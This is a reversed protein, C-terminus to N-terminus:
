SFEDYSDNSKDFLIYSIKEIKEPKIHYVHTLEQLIENYYSSAIIIKKFKLFRILDPTIITKTEFFGYKKTEDSDIFAVINFNDNNMQKIRRLCYSGTGYILINEKKYDEKRNEKMLRIRLSSIEFNKIITNLIDVKSLHKYKLDYSNFETNIKGKKIVINTDNENVAYYKSLDSVNFDGKNVIKYMYSWHTAETSVKNLKSLSNISNIVIQMKIQEKSRVPYHAFKLYDIHEEIINGGLKDIKHYGSELLINSNLINSPLIVKEFTEISEDRYYEYDVALGGSTNETCIYTRWKIYYIQSLNISELIERPNGHESFLFEDTDIPVIIDPTLETNIKYLYKNAFGFEEFDSFGENYIIVNLGEEKLKFLIDLTYDTSGNDIFVMQDFINMHYRTFIEVIDAENKLKTMSVIKRM